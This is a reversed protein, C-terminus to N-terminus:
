VLVLVGVRELEQALAGAARREDPRELAAAGLGDGDGDASGPHHVGLGAPVEHQAVDGDLLLGAALQHAGLLGEGGDGAGAGLQLALGFAARHEVGHAVGEGPQAVERRHQEGLGLGSLGIPRRQPRHGVQGDRGASRLGGLRQARHAEIGVLERRQLTGEALVPRHEGPGVLPQADTLRRAFSAPALGGVARQPRREGGVASREARQPDGAGGAAPPDSPM